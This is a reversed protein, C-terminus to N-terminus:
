RWQREFRIQELRWHSLRVMGSCLAAIVSGKIHMADLGHNTIQFGIKESSSLSDRGARISSQQPIQGRAIVRPEDDRAISFEILLHQSDPLSLPIEPGPIAVTSREEPKAESCVASDSLGPYM